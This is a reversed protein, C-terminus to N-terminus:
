STQFACQFEACAATDEPLVEDAADSLVAIVDGARLWGGEPILVKRLYVEKKPIFEILTKSTELEVLLSGAEIKSGEAAHWELVRMEETDADARDGAVFKYIM